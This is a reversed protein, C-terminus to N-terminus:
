FCSAFVYFFFLSISQCTYILHDCVTKQVKLCLNGYCELYIIM